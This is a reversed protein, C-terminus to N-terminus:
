ASSPMRSALTHSSNLRTSKRDQNQSLNFAPPSPSSLPHSPQIADGVRHVHTKALESIQHHVPFGPRSLNMPDCLTPCSQTVSSFQSSQSCTLCLLSKDFHAGPCDADADSPRKPKAPFDRASPEPAPATCVALAERLCLEKDPLSLAWPQM